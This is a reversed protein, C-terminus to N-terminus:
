ISQMFAESKFPHNLLTGMVSKLIFFIEARERESPRINKLQPLENKQTYNVWKIISTSLPTGSLSLQVNTTLSADHTSLFYPRNLDLKESTESCRSWDAMFGLETLLKVLYAYFISESSLTDFNMLAERLLHYIKQCEQEEAVLKHTTEAMYFLLSRSKLDLDREDLLIHSVAENLHGLERGMFYNLEAEYLLELKGLFKSKLRRAGKAVLAIKGQDETLVTVIQDAEGFDIRRLVIGRTKIQHEL